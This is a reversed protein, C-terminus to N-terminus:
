RFLRKRNSYQNGIRNCFEFLKRRCRVFSCRRRRKVLGCGTQFSIGNLGGKIPAWVINSLAEAIATRSGAVPDLLAAVPSHGISTAIGEKGNYDLAMVGCNNLPLQLPGTTQQKAVKGGV